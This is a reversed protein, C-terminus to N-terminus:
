STAKSKAGDAGRMYARLASVRYRPWGGVREWKLSHSPKKRWQELSGVAKRLVSAAEETDLLTSDALKDFDFTPLPPKGPRRHHRQKQAVPASAQAVASPQAATALLHKKVYPRGRPRAVVTGEPM